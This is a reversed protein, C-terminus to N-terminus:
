RLFRDRALWTCLAVIAMAAVLALGTAYDARATRAGAIALAAYGPLRGVVAIAVVQWVPLRTLGALVCLADDPLGPLLFGVFLVPRANRDLRTDWRHLTAPAVAREVFPRGYRRALGTAIATGIAAGVLSLATGVVPGFLYGGAFAVVQGPIPAIVVQAAQVAVYVLPALPGFGAIWTRLAVPDTLWPALRRGALMALAVLGVLLAVAGIAQRRATTTRVM